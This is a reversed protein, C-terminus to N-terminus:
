YKTDFIENEIKDFFSVDKTEHEKNRRKEEMNTRRTRRTKKREEKVAEKDLLCNNFYLEIQVVSIFM